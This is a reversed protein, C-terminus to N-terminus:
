TERWTVGNRIWWISTHSVGFRSAIEGNGHGESILRRIAKVDKESLKARGNSSGPSPNNPPKRGLVRFGHATNQSVSCVELNEIRNDDKIGNLHNIVKGFPIKKRSFSEWVLAHARIRKQPNGMSPRSYGDKDYCPALFPPSGKRPRKHRIFGRDSVEYDAEFGFADVWIM